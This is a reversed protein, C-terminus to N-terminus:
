RRLVGSSGGVTTNKGAGNTGLLAVISGPDVSLTIGQVATIARHYVVELKEVTLLAATMRAIGWGSSAQVAVVSLLKAYAAVHRRSLPSVFAPVPDHGPRIRRLEGCVASQCPAAGRAARAPRNRHHLPLPHCLNSRAARRAALGHRRYDGHRSVPHHPLALIGRRFR